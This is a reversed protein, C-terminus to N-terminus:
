YKGHFGFEQGQPDRLVHRYGGGVRLDSECSVLSVEQCGGWWRRLHEPETCAAYLLEPPAKFTRTIRIETDSPFTIELDDPQVKSVM